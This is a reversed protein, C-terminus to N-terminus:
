RLSTPFVALPESPDWRTIREGRAYRLWAALIALNVSVLFAALQFPRGRWAGGAAATYFVVQAVLTFQYLASRSVLMANTLGAAIMCFPV